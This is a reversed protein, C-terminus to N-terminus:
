SERMRRSLGARLDRGERRSFRLQALAMSRVDQRFWRSSMLGTRAHTSSGLLLHGLEHAIVSGLLREAPGGVDRAVNAVQLAFVTAMVGGQATPDVYAFGLTRAANGSAAGPVLRLWLEDARLPDACGGTTETLCMVWRVAIDATAYLSRTVAFASTVEEADLASFNLVRINLATQTTPPVVSSTDDASVTAVTPLMLMPMVLVAATAAGVVLRRM